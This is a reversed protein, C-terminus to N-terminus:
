RRGAPGWVPHPLTFRSSSAWTGSRICSWSSILTPTVVPPPVGLPLRESPPLYSRRSAWGSNIVRLYLRSPDTASCYSLLLAKALGQRPRPSTTEVLGSQASCSHHGPSTTEVLDNAPNSSGAEKPRSIFGALILRTGPILGLRIRMTQWQSPISHISLISLISRHRGRWGGPDSPLELRIKMPRQFISSRTHRTERGPDYRGPYGPHIFHLPVIIKKRKQDKQRSNLATIEPLLLHQTPSGTLAIKGPGAPLM